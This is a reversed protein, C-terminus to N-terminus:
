FNEKSLATVSNDDAYQLEVLLTPTNKRKSKLCSLNFVKYDLRYIRDMSKHLKDKVLLTITAIFILFFIPAIICGQKVGTKVEFAEIERGDTQVNATMGNHLLRLINVFKKPWGVKTM